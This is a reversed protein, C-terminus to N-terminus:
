ASVARLAASCIAETVSDGVAWGFCRDDCPDDPVDHMNRGISWTGDVFYCASQNSTGAQALVVKAGYRKRFEDVLMWADAINELPNWSGMGDTWARVVYDCSQEKGADTWHATNRAHLKWGMVRTGLAVIMERKEQDTM